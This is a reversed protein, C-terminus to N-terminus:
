AMFYICVIYKKNMNDKTFQMNKMMMYAFYDPNEVLKANKSKKGIEIDGRIKTKNVM